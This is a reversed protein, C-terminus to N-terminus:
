KKFISFPVGGAVPATAPTSPPTISSPEGTLAGCACRSGATGAWHHDSAHMSTPHPCTAARVSAAAKGLMAAPPRTGVPPPELAAPRFGAAKGAEMARARFNATEVCREAEARTMGNNTMSFGDPGKKNPLLMWVCWPPEGSSM